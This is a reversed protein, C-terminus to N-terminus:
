VGLGRWLTGGFDLSVEESWQAQRNILEQVSSTDGGKEKSYQEAWVKAEEFQRLDSFMEMALEVQAVLGLVRM